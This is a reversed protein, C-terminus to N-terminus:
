QAVEHKSIPKVVGRILKYGCKRVTKIFFERSFINVFNIMIMSRNSSKGRGGKDIFQDFQVITLCYQWVIM